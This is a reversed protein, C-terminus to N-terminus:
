GRERVPTHAQPDPHIQRMHHWLHSLVDGGALGERSGQVIAAHDQTVHHSVGPHTSPRECPSTSMLAGPPPPPRHM